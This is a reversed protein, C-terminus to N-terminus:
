KSVGKIKEYTRFTGLGLIGGLVPLMTAMDLVPLVLESSAAIWGLAKFIGFAWGTIPFVIFNIAFASVLVWGLAPRWGAVFLSQSKAEEKNVEIQSVALEKDAQLTAMVEEHNMEMLRAKAKAAETPDEVFKDILKLGVGIIDDIGFM